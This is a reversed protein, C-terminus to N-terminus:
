GCSTGGRWPVLENGKRRDNGSGIRRRHAVGLREFEVAVRAASSRPRARLPGFRYGLEWGGIGADRLLRVLRREAESAARDNRPWSCGVSRHRGWTAGCAWCWAAYM